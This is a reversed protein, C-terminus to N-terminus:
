TRILDVTHVRNYMIKLLTGPLLYSINLYRHSDFETQLPVYSVLTVDSARGIGGNM